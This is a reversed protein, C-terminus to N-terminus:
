IPFFFRLRLLINSPFPHCSSTPEIHLCQDDRANVSYVWKKSLMLFDSAVCKSELSGNGSTDRSFFCQVISINECDFVIGGDAGLRNTHSHTDAGMLSLALFLPFTLAGTIFFHSQASSGMVSHLVPLLPFPSHSKDRETSQLHRENAM